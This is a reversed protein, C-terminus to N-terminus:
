STQRSQHLVAVIAIKKQTLRYIITYPYRTLVLERTGTRRGTHGLLPFSPLKEVAKILEAVVRAAAPPNDAAIYDRISEVNRQSRPSWELPRKPM